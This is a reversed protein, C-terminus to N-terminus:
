KTTSEDPNSSKKPRSVHVSAILMPELHIVNETSSDVYVVNLQSVMLWEPHMVHYERGDNMRLTFSRFPEQKLVKRLADTDM